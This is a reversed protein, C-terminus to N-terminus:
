AAEKTIEAALRFFRDRAPEKAEWILDIAAYLAAEADIILAQQKGMDRGDFARATILGTIAAQAKDAALLLNDSRTM